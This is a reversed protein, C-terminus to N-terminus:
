YRLSARVFETPLRPAKVVVPGFVNDWYAIQICSITDSRFARSQPSPASPGPPVAAGTSGSASTGSSSLATASGAAVAPTSSPLRFDVSKGPSLTPTAPESNGGGRAAGGGGGRDRERVRERDRAEDRRTSATEDAAAATEASVARSGFAVYNWLASLLGRPEALLPFIVALNKRL